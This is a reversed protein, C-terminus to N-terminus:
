DAGKPFQLTFETGEEPTSELDITGGLDSVLKQVISLGLGTGQDKTTFFPEFIKAQDEKSIGPGNDRVKIEVWFENKESGYQRAAISVQGDPPIAQLANLLLNWLIQSLEGASIKLFLNPPIELKWAITPSFQRNKKILDVTEIILASIDLRSDITQVPKTFALFDNMLSDLKSVERSIINLLREGTGKEKLDDKLVQISGSISALPNRVEHAMGAVMKGMLALRDVQRLHAEMIKIQSIDKFSLIKGIGQARNEKVRNFSFGLTIVSGDPSVYAAEMRKGELHDTLDLNAGSDPFLSILPCHVVDGSSRGLIKEGARNISQIKNDDDLTILGIDLNEIVIRNWEELQDINKKQSEIQNRQKQAQESFISSLYGVFFFGMGNIVIQYFLYKSSSSLPQNELGYYFPIKGSGQLFLLSAYLVGAYLASLLAGPRFFLIGAALIVLFYLYSFISEIGGTFYVVGTVFLGDVGLQFFAIGRIAKGRLLFLLYAISLLYQLAILFFVPSFSFPFLFFVKNEHLFVTLLLFVSIFVLRWLVLWRTRRLRDEAIYFWSPSSPGERSDSPTIVFSSKM